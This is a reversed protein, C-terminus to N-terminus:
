FVDWDGVHSYWDLGLAALGSAGIGDGMLILQRPSVRRPLRIFGYRGWSHPGWVNTFLVTPWAGQSQGWHRAAQLLAAEIAPTAGFMELVVNTKGLGMPLTRVVVHGRVHEGEAYVFARYPSIDAAFYRWNLYDASREIAIKGSSVLTAAYAEMRADFRSVPQIASHVSLAPHLAVYADLVGRVQWGFKKFGPMSNANPYGFFIEGEGIQERLAMICTKFLGKGRADPHTATDCSQWGIVRGQPTALHVPVMANSALLRGNERVAVIKAKGAPAIYKRQYHEASHLANLVEDLASTGTVGKFAERQLAVLEELDASHPDLLEINM